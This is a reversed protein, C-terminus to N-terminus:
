IGLTSLDKSRKMFLILGDMTPVRGGRGRQSVRDSLQAKSMERYILLDPICYNPEMEISLDHLVEVEDSRLHGMKEYARTYAGTHEFPTRDEIIVNSETRGNLMSQLVRHRKASAVLFHVQSNFAWRSPDGQALMFFPNSEEIVEELLTDAYWHPALMQALTSAGAAVSGTVVVYVKDRM